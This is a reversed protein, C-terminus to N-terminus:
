RASVVRTGSIRDQLARRDATVFAPLYGLGATVLSVACGVARLVAASVDARQGDDGVVRIGTIMKGITQGSAAVFVVLYGADLLVFFTVIPVVPLLGIEAFTLGALALTLYLVIGDIASLLFLDIAAAIVRRGSGAPVVSVDPPTAAAVPAAASDDNAHESPFAFEAEDPRPTVSRVRTRPIEPTTRRVSLPPRLPRPKTIM